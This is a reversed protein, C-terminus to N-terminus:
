GHCAEKGSSVLGLGARGGCPAPPQVIELVTAFTRDTVQERLRKLVAARDAAALQPLVWRLVPLKLDAPLPAALELDITALEGDILADWCAPDSEWPENLPSFHTAAFLALRHYLRRGAKGREPWRGYETEVTLQMLDDLDREAKPCDLRPCIAAPAGQALDGEILLHTRCAGLLLRIEGIAAATDRQSQWDTRRSLLLTQLLQIRLASRTFAHIAQPSTAAQM